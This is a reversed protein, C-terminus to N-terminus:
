RIGSPEEDRWKDISRNLTQRLVLLERIEEEPLSLAAALEKITPQRNLADQLDAEAAALTKVRRRVPRSLPDQKRLGDIIEGTIRRSAYTEFKFGREPEFRPIADLLGHHAYSLLDDADQYAPARTRARHALYRALPEYHAVLIELAQPSRTEIYVEWIAALDAESAPM